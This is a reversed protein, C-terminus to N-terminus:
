ATSSAVTGRAHPLSDRGAPARTTDFLSQQAILVFPRDTMEGRWIAAEHRVIEDATGLHVTAARTCADSRWPIPGDLAYDIKFVGPGYKFRELRRVYHSPLDSGAIRALQRPTVDFIVARSAPVDAMSRIPRSTEIVGGLSRFYSALANTIAQSGGKACPWGTTHGALALVMGFSSSGYWDLPVFSHASCGLFLTRAAETRFRRAVWTAPRLANLGFRAMVFPHRPIPRIPRMIESFLKLSNRALPAMLQRYAKADAGLMEATRDVSLEIAAASGDELPHAIALPSELWELGHQALPLTHFFPSVIAMPHIASCVDHQFGPRTLEATRAGGGITDNAELIQVSVGAHALEIAAALGNPGAGVVVADFHPVPSSYNIIDAASLRPQSDM